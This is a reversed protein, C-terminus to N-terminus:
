NLHIEKIVSTGNSLVAFNPLVKTCHNFHPPWPPEAGQESKAEQM